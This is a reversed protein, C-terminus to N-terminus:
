GYKQIVTVPMQFVIQIKTKLICLSGDCIIDTNLMVLWVELFWSRAQKSEKMQMDPRGGRIRVMNLHYNELSKEVGLTTRDKTKVKTKKGLKKKKKKFSYHSKWLLM